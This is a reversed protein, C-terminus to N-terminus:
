YYSKTLYRKVSGSIPEPLRVALEADHDSRAYVRGITTCAATRANYLGSVKVYSAFLTCVIPPM